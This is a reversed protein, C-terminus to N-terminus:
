EKVEVNERILWKRQGLDKKEKGDLSKSSAKVSFGDPIPRGGFEADPAPRYDIQAELNFVEVGDVIVRTWCEHDSAFVRTDKVWVEFREQAM